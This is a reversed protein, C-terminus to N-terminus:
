AITITMQPINASLNGYAVAINLLGTGTAPVFTFPLTVAAPVNPQLGNVTRTGNGAAIVINSNPSTMTVTIAGAVAVMSSLRVVVQSAVAAGGGTLSASAVALINAVAITCKDPDDPCGYGLSVQGRSVVSEKTVKIAANEEARTQITMYQPM